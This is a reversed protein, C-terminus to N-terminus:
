GEERLTQTSGWCGLSGWDITRRGPGASKGSTQGGLHGTQSLYAAAKCPRLSAFREERQNGMKCSKQIAKLPLVCVPCVVLVAADADFSVLKIGSKAVEQTDVGM